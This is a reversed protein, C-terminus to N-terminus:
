FSLSHHSIHDIKAFLCLEWFCILINLVLFFATALYVANVVGHVQYHNYATLGTLIALFLCTFTIVRM